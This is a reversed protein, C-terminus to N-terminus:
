PARAFVPVRTARWVAISDLADRAAAADDVDDWDTIRRVADELTGGDPMCDYARVCDYEAPLVAYWANDPVLFEYVSPDLEPQALSDAYVSLGRRVTDSLRPSLGPDLLIAHVEAAGLPRVNDPCFWDSDISGRVIAVFDADLADRGHADVLDDWLACLMTLGGDVGRRVYLVVLRQVFRTTACGFPVQRAMCKLVEIHRPDCLFANSADAYLDGSELMAHVLAEGHRAFLAAVDVDVPRTLAQTAFASLMARARTHLRHVLCCTWTSVPTAVNAMYGAVHGSLKFEGREYVILSTGPVKFVDVGDSAAPTELSAM